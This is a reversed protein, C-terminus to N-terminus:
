VYGSGDIVPYATLVAEDVEAGIGPRELAPRV